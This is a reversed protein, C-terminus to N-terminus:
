FRLHFEEDGGGWRKHVDATKAQRTKPLPVRVKVSQRKGNPKYMKSAMPKM